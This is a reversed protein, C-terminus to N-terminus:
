EFCSYEAREFYVFHLLRLGNINSANWHKLHNTAKQNYISNNKCVFFYTSFLLVCSSILRTKDQINLLFILKDTPLIVM